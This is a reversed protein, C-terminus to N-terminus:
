RGKQAPFFFRKAQISKSGKTKSDELTKLLQNRASETPYTKQDKAVAQMVAEYDPLFEVRVRVWSGASDPQVTTKNVTLDFNKVTGARFSEFTATKPSVELDKSSEFYVKMQTINGVLSKLTATVMAYPTSGSKSKSRIGLDLSQPQVYMVPRTAEAVSVTTYLLLLAAVFVVSKKM